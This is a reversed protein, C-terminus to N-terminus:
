NRQRIEIAGNVAWRKTAHMIAIHSDDGYLADALAKFLNDIDPKQRHLEWDMMDRKKQSWSPPMPLWFTIEM